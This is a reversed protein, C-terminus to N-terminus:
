EKERRGHRSRSRASSAASKNGIMDRSPLTPILLPIGKRLLLNFSSGIQGKEGRQKKTARGKQWRVRGKQADRLGHGRGHASLLNQERSTRGKPTGKGKRKRMQNQNAPLVSSASPSRVQPRGANKPRSTFGSAPTLEEGEKKRRCDGTTRNASGKWGSFQYHMRSGDGKREQAHGKMEGSRSHECLAGDRIEIEM